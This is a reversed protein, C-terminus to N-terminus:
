VSFMSILLYGMACFVAFELCAVGINDQHDVELGIDIKPLSLHKLIITGVYLILWMAGCHAALAFLNDVLKADVYPATSLGAYLALSLGISKGAYRIGISTNDLNFNEQLSAGQNFKAFRTERVRSDIAFIAQLLLFALTVILLNSLGQPHVWRYLGLVVVCNGLLMGSDVLAACINQKLIASEENFRHLIWKRHIFQGLFIFVFFLTILLFVHVPEQQATHLSIEDFLFAMSICVVAIQTAYNIGLAFNDRQALEDSLTKKARWETIRRLVIIAASIITFSVLIALFNINALSLDLM